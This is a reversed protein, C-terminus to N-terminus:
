EPLFSLVARVAVYLTFLAFGGLAACGITRGVPSWREADGLLLDLRRNSFLDNRTRRRVALILGVWPVMLLVLLGVADNPDRLDV